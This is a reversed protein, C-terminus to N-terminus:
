NKGQEWSMPITNSFDYISKKYITDEFVVQEVNLRQTLIGRVAAFSYTLDTVLSEPQEMYSSMLLKIDENEGILNSLDFGTFIREEARSISYISRRIQVSVLMFHLKAEYMFHNIGVDQKYPQISHYKCFYDCMFHCVVGLAESRELDSLTENNAKALYRDCDPKSEAYYHTNFQHRQKDPLVNGNFFSKKHLNFSLNSQKLKDYFYNAVVIHSFSLM